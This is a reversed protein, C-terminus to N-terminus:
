KNKNEWTKMAVVLRQNPNPFDQKAQESEMYRRIYGSRTEDKRPNPM